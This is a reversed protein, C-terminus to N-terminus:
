RVEKESIEKDDKGQQIDRLNKIIDDPIEVDEYMNELDVKGFKLNEVRKDQKDLEKNKEYREEYIEREDEDFLLTMLAEMKEDRSVEKKLLAKM